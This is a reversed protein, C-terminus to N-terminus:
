KGYLSQVSPPLTISVNVYHNQNYKTGNIRQDEKIMLEIINSINESWMQTRTEISMIESFLAASIQQGHKNTGGVNIYDPIGIIKNELAQIFNFANIFDMTHFSSSFVQFSQKGLKNLEPIEVVFDGSMFERLSEYAAEDINGETIGTPVGDKNIFIKSQNVKIDKILMEILYDKIAPIELAFQYDSADLLNNRFIIAPVYNFGTNIITDEWVNFGYKNLLTKITNEDKINILTKTNNSKKWITSIFEGIQLERQMVVDINKSAYTSFVFGRIKVLKDHISEYYVDELLDLNLKNDNEFSYISSIGQISAIYIAKWIKNYLKTSKILNNIRSTEDSLINSSFPKTNDRITINKTSSMFLDALKKAMRQKATCSFMHLAWCIKKVPNDRTCQDCTNCDCNNQKTENM